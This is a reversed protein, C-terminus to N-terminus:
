DIGKIKKFEVGTQLCSLGGNPIGPLLPLELDPQPPTTDPLNWNNPCHDIIGLDDISVTLLSYM